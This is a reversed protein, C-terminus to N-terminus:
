EKGRRKRPEPKQQEEPEPTPEEPVFVQVSLTQTGNAPEDTVVNYNRPDRETM